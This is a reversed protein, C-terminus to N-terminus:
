TKMGEVRKLLNASEISIQESTSAIESAAAATNEVGLGISSVTKVIEQITNHQEYTSTSINESLETFQKTNGLVIESYEEQKMSSNAILNVLEQAKNIYNIIRYFVESTKSVYERGSATEKIGEKVLNIITKTSSATKDALNSIEDAVVAFGKGQEGARAAEIAANLSLLNVQDSIDSIMNVIESIEHTSKDINEMSKINKQMIDNGIRADEASIKANEIAEKAYESIQSVLM